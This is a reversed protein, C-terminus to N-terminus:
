TKLAGAFRQRASVVIDRMWETGKGNLSSYDRANNNVEPNQGVGYGSAQPLLSNSIILM